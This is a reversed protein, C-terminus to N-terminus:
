KSMDFYDVVKADSLTIKLLIFIDSLTIKILFFM